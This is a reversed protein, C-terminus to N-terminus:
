KAMNNYKRLSKKVVYIQIYFADEDSFAKIIM